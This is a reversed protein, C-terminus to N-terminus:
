EGMSVGSKVMCKGEDMPRYGAICQLLTSKGAGNQGVLGVRDGPMVTLHVDSMLESQSLLYITGATLSLVFGLDPHLHVFIGNMYSDVCTIQLCDLILWSVGARLGLLLEFSGSALEEVCADGRSFICVSRGSFFILLSFLARLLRVIYKKEM